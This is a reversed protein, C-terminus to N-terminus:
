KNVVIKRTMVAEGNVYLTYFYIGPNLDSTQIKAKTETPQLDYEGVSNGLVNHLIIKAKTNDQDMKYDVFAFNTAPNPYVDQLTITRSSYINVKETKEEVIFNLEVELAETPNSKNFAIYRISSEGPVLGAELAVQLSNLTQGPEVKVIYDEVSEDLCNGDRCYYNRQSTGIQGGAKRIILTLPRTSNNKFNLPAKIVDGITGKYSEQLSVIEFGQAALGHSLSFMMVLWLFTKM